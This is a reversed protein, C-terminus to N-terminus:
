PSVEEAYSNRIRFPDSSVIRQVLGRLSGSSALDNALSLVLSRHYVAVANEATNPRLEVKVGTFYEYYRKATCAYFDYGSPTAPDSLKAGLDAISAIAMDAPRVTADTSKLGRFYLRGDAPQMAWDFTGTTGVHDAGLQVVSVVAPLDGGAQRHSQMIVNKKYVRALPDVTAHCQMCSESKDFQHPSNPLVKPAADAALLVPMPSCLLSEFIHSALRRHNSYEKFPVAGDDLNTNQIIFVPSGLVGGGFHQNLDFPQKGLYELERDVQTNNRDTSTPGRRGGNRLDMYSTPVTLAPPVRIGVLEGVQSNQENSIVFAAPADNQTWNEVGISLLNVYNNTDGAPRVGFQAFAPYNNRVTAGAPAQRLGALASDLTLVDRVSASPLFLSRTFYFAPQELDLANMTMNTMGSDNLILRSTFWSNHLMHMNKFVKKAVANSPNAIRMETTGSLDALSLLEMCANIPSKTGAIVQAMTADDLPVPARVLRDYCRAYIESNTMNPVPGAIAISALLLLIKM